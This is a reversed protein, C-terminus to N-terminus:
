RGTWRGARETTGAIGGIRGYGAYNIRCYKNSYKGRTSMVSMIDLLKSYHKQRGGPTGVRFFSSLIEHVVGGVLQARLTTASDAAMRATNKRLRVNLGEADRSPMASSPLRANFSFYCRYPLLLLVPMAFADPLASAIRGGLDAHFRYV